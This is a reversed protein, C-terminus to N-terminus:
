AFSFAVWGASHSACRWLCVAAMHRLDTVPLDACVAPSLRFHYDAINFWQFFDNSRDSAAPLNENYATAAPYGNTKGAALAFCFLQFALKAVPVQVPRIFPDDPLLRKLARYRAPFVGLIGRQERYFIPWKCSYGDEDQYELQNIDEFFNDKRSEEVAKMEAFTPMKDFNRRREM